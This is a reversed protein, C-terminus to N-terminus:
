SQTKILITQCSALATRMYILFYLRPRPPGTCLHTNKPIPFTCANKIGVQHGTWIIHTKIQTKPKIKLLYLWDPISKHTACRMRPLTKVKLFIVPIKFILMKTSFKCICYRLKLTPFERMRESRELWILSQSHNAWIAWSLHAGTIWDSLDSMDFSCIAWESM